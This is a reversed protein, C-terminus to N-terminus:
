REVVLGPRVPCKVTVCRISHINVVQGCPAGGYLCVVALSWQLFPVKQGNLRLWRQTGNLTLHRIRYVHVVGGSSCM